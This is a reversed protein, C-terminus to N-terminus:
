RPPRIALSVLGDKCNPGGDGLTEMPGTDGDQSLTGGFLFGAEDSNSVYGLDVFGVPATFKDMGIADDFNGKM